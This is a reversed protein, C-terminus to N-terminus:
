FVKLKVDFAKLETGFDVGTIKESFVKLEADFAKLAAEFDADNFLVADAEKKYEPILKGKTFKTTM